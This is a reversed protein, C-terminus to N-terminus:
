QSKKNGDISDLLRLNAQALELTPELRLAERLQVRAQRLNRHLEIRIAAAATLGLPFQPSLVLAQNLLDLAQEPYGQHLREIGNDYLGWAKEYAPDKEVRYIHVQEYSNSYVPPFWQPMSDLWRNVQKWSQMKDGNLILEPKLFAWTIKDRLLWRRFEDLSRESGISYTFRGTLLFLWDNKNTLIRADAATNEQVWRVSDSTASIDKSPERQRAARVLAVDRGSYCLLMMGVALAPFVRGRKRLADLGIGLFVFLGPLLATFYRATVALWVSQLMVLAILFVGMAGAVASRVSQERNLQLVGYFIIGIVGTALVGYSLQVALTKSDSGGLLTQVFLSELVNKAQAALADSHRALYLLRPMWLDSYSDSFSSFFINRLWFLGPILLGMAMTFLARHWRHYLVFAIGVAPALFIGQPRILAAMGAMLSAGMALGWSDQELSRRTLWFAVVVVLVFFAESMVTVSQFAVVPNLLMLSTLALRTAPRTWESLLKWFMCGLLLTCLLSVIKLAEWHPQLVAVWPALLLPFGPLPDKLPPHDPMQLHVYQSSLISKAALIASADDNFHGVSYRPWLALYLGVALAVILAYAVKRWAAVNIRRIM